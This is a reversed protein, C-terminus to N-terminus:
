FTQFYNTNLSISFTQKSFVAIKSIPGNSSAPCHLLIGIWVLVVSFSGQKHCSLALCDPLHKDKMEIPLYVYRSSYNEATRKNEVGSYTWSAEENGTRCSIFRYNYLHRMLRHIIIADISWLCELSDAHKKNGSQSVNICEVPVDLFVFCSICISTVTQHM